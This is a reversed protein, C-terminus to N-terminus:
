LTEIVIDYEKVIVNQIGTKSCTLEEGRLPNGTCTM